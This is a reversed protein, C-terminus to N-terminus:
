SEDGRKRVVKAPAGVAVSYEPIDANVVANAGIVAGRGVTVGPLIVANAGIYVDDGIVVPSLTPEQQVMPFSREKFGHQFSTLVVGPSILVDNGVSVGGAGLITCGYNILVRDGLIISGTPEDGTNLVVGARFHSRSGVRIGKNKLSGVLVVGADFVCEDGIEVGEPCHIEVRRHLWVPTGLRRFRGRWFSERVAYAMSGWKPGCFARFPVWVCHIVSVILNRLAM